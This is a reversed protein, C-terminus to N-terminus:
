RWWGNVIDVYDFRGLDSENMAAIARLEGETHESM